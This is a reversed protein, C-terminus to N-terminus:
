HWIAFGGDVVVNQGTVYDSAPAALFLIAGKLDTGDRGMRGLATHESYMDVFQQSLTRTPGFFGGPSIANVLIGMPGFYCAMDLTMGIVGSKAAAYEIPQGSMGCADYMKRDRGLLAAISAINIIKGSGADAMHRGVAKCCWLSGTLNIDIMNKIEAPDRELLKGPSDGSGGGANNVLIDIRQKWAFAEDACCAVNTWELQDLPLGLADVNYESALKEASATASDATRSTVIVHAGAAALVDAADYGLHRAGGTIMAVKGTLDFMNEIQNHM